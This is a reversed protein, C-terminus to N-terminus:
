LKILDDIELVNYQYDNKIIDDAYQLVVEQNIETKYRAWTTWTPKTLLSEPPIERPHGFHEVLKEYAKIANELFSFKWDLTNGKFTFLGDGTRDPDHFPRHDFSGRGETAFSWKYRPYNAPPQNIGVEVPSEAIVLAGNSSFWAPTIAGSLGTPGNDFINLPALKLMVENLPWQQNILEGHGYWYGPLEITPEVPSEAPSTTLTWQDALLNLNLTFTSFTGIVSSSNARLDQLPTASCRVTMLLINNQKFSISFPNRTTEFQIKM